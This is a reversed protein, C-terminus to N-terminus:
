KTRKTKRVNSKKRAKSKKRAGAGLKNTPASPLSNRLNEEDYRRFLEDSEKDLRSKQKDYEEKQKETPLFKKRSFSSFVRSKKKDYEEKQKETPLSKKRSFSSFVRSLIFPKECIHMISKLKDDINDTNTLILKIEETKNM